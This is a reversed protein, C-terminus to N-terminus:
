ARENRREELKAVRDQLAELEMDLSRITHNHTRLRQETPSAWKHFETLLRTEVGDLDGKTAFHELDTKTAFQQLMWRKDREDLM